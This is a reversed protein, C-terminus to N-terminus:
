QAEPLRGACHRRTAGDRPEKAPRETRRRRPFQAQDTAASGDRGTPKALRQRNRDVRCPSRCVLPWGPSRRLPQSAIWDWADDVAGFSKVKKAYFPEALKALHKVWKTEAVLAMTDIRDKYTRGCDLDSSWASVKEWHFRSLDLLLRIAGHEKIAAEVAPDHSAYDANTVTGIPKFGPTNGRARRWPKSCPSAEGHTQRDVSGSVGAPDRVM